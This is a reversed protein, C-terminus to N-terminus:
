SPPAAAPVVKPAVLRAVDIMVGIYQHFAADAEHLDIGALPAYYPEGATILVHDIPGELEGFFGELADHDTVDFAATRVPDVLEAARRLREPDRGTLV